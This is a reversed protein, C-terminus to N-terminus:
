DGAVNRKRYIYGWELLVRAKEYVFGIYTRNGSSKWLGERGLTDEPKLLKIFEGITKPPIAERLLRFQRNPRLTM